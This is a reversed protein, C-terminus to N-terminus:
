EEYGPHIGYKKMKRYLTSRSIGLTKAVKSLNDGHISIAEGILQIESEELTRATKKESSKHGPKGLSDKMAARTDEETIKNGSSLLLSREITNKLERINGKWPQYSLWDLAGQTLEKEPLNFSEVAESAFHRALLPIDGRRNRLPPLDICILNIRYLLDERFVRDDVLDKLQRNTASVIRVNVTKAQSDGLVEFTNDQLVRLLKVQSSLDLEGIEDLFLTGQHALEFRGIRDAIADTFAGKRHGFMESEFLQTSIGGLNVKIFPQSKRLSLNHIAEAILEKGTGSEGSILVPAHTSAVRKVLDLIEILQPDKGIINEFGAMHANNEKTSAKTKHHGALAISTEIARLLHQNQWPKTVFDAAGLKMGQVALDVSGWATILIVPTGPSLVRTKQLLELGENGSISITFNMDLLVLLYPRARIRELYEKPSDVSEVSYGSKKLLYSLSDRIAPDDDCILIKIDSSM